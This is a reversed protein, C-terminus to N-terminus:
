AAGEITVTTGATNRSYFAIWGDIHKYDPLTDQYVWGINQVRSEPANLDIWHCVGKYPCNYTRESIDIIDSNVNDPHFYWNGELEIVSEGEIGSALVAGNHRDRVTLIRKQAM